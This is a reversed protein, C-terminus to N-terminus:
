SGSYANSREHHMIDHAAKGENKFNIGMGRKKQNKAQAQQHWTRASKFRQVLDEIYKRLKQFFNMYYTGTQGVKPVNKDLTIDVETYFRTIEKSLEKLNKRIEEIEKKVKIEKASFVEHTDVPNIKQHLERKLQEKRQEEKLQEQQENFFDPTLQSPDNLGPIQDLSHEDRQSPRNHASRKEAEALARAFPNVSANHGSKAPKSRTNNSGLTNM